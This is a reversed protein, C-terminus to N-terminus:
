GEPTEPSAPAQDSRRAKLARLEEEVAAKAAAEDLRALLEAPLAGSPAGSASLQRHEIRKRTTAVDV